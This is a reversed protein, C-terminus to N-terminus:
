PLLYEVATDPECISDMITANRTGLKPRPSSACASCKALSTNAANSTPLCPQAARESPTHQHWSHSQSSGNFQSPLSRRPRAKRKM